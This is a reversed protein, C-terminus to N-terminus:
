SKMGTPSSHAPFLRLKDHLIPNYNDDVCQNRTCTHHSIQWLYVYNYIQYSFKFFLIWLQSIVAADRSHHISQKAYLPVSNGFKSNLRNALSKGNLSLSPIVKLVKYEKSVYTIRKNANETCDAKTSSM